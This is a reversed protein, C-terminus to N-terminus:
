AVSTVVSMSGAEMECNENSMIDFYRLIEKLLGTLLKLSGCLMLNYRVALLLSQAVNDMSANVTDLKLSVYEMRTEVGVISLRFLKDM